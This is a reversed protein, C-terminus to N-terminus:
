ISLPPVSAHHIVQHKHSIRAGPWTSPAAAFSGLRTDSTFVAGAWERSGHSSGAGQIFAVGRAVFDFSGAGNSSLRIRDPARREKSYLYSCSCLPALNDHRLASLAAVTGHFKKKDRIPWSPSAARSCAPATPRACHVGGRCGPTSWKKLSLPRTRYTQVAASRCEALWWLPRRM